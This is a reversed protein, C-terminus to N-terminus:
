REVFKWLGRSGGAYLENKGDGDLDTVVLANHLGIAGDVHTRWIEQMSDAALVILDGSLTGVVLEDGAHGSLLDAVVLGTIAYAGRPQAAHPQLRLTTPASFGAGGPQGPTWTLMHVEGAAVEADALSGEAMHYDAPRALHGYHTGFWIRLRESGGTEHRVALAGGGFGLDYPTSDVFGLGHPAGGTRMPGPQLVRVRGGPCGLVVATQGSQLAVAHMAQANMAPNHAVVSRLDHFPTRDGRNATITQPVGTSSWVGIIEGNAAIRLGCVLNAWDESAGGPGRNWNQAWYWCEVGGAIPLVSGCSPFPFMSGFVGYPVAGRLWNFPLYPGSAAKEFFAVLSKDACWPFTWGLRFADPVLASIEASPLAAAPGTVAGVHGWGRSASAVFACDLLEVNGLADIAWYAGGQDLVHLRGPDNPNPAISWAAALTRNTRPQVATDVGGNSTSAVDYNAPLQWPLAAATPTAIDQIHFWTVHGSLTAVVVEEQYGGAPGPVLDGVALACAQSAFPYYGGVSESLKKRGVLNTFQDLLILTDAALVLLHDGIPQAQNEKCTAMALGGRGGDLVLDELHHGGTGVPVAIRDLTFPLHVRVATGDADGTWLSIVAPLAFGGLNVRMRELDHPLGQTPLDGPIAPLPQSAAILQANHGADFQVNALVSRRNSVLSVTSGQLVFDEIGPESWEHVPVLDTDTFVLGGHVARFVIENGAHGPLVDGVQLGHPEAVEWPLRPSTATVALTTPDLKHLHRRTGVVLQWGAGAELAVMAFARHGLRRSQAVRNLPQRPHAVDVAFATVVGDASGVYVRGDRVLMAEKNGLWTGAAGPQSRGLFAADLALPDAPQPTPMAQGLRGFYWEHPDDLGRLQQTPARPEHAVPNPPPSQGAALEAARQDVARRAFDHLIMGAQPTPTSGPDYPNSVLGGFHCGNQASIWALGHAAPSGFGSTSLRLGSPSWASGDIVRIWDTGTSTLDEDGVYFCAPRYTSATLFRRLFSMDHIELGQNWTYQGWNLYDSSDVTAGRLHSGNLEGIAWGLDQEGFLRQISPNIVQSFCGHVLEPHRLTVWSAQQGGNSGGDFVVVVRDRIQQATLAHIGGLPNRDSDEGLLVQVAATLQLYRQENLETQRGMVTLVPYAEIPWYLSQNAHGYWSAIAAPQFRDVHQSATNQQFAAVAENSGPVPDGSYGNAFEARVLGDPSFCGRYTNYWTLSVPGPAGSHYVPPFQVTPFLKIVILIKQGAYPTGRPRYIEFAGQDVHPGVAGYRAHVTPLALGAPRLYGTLRDAEAGHNPHLVDVFSHVTWPDSGSLHIDDSTVGTGDDHGFWGGSDADPGNAVFGEGHNWAGDVYQLKPGTGHLIAGPLPAAITPHVHRGPNPVQAALPAGTSELVILLLLGAPLGAPVREGM